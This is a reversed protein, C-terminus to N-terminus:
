IIQTVTKANLWTALRIQRTHRRVRQVLDVKWTLNCSNMGICTEYCSKKSLDACRSKNLYDTSCFEAEAQDARATAGHFAECNAVSHLQPLQTGPHPLSFNLFRQFTWFFEAPTAADESADRRHCSTRNKKFLGKWSKELSCAWVLNCAAQNYLRSEHHVEVFECFFAYWWMWWISKLPAETSRGTFTLSAEWDFVRGTRLYIGRVYRSLVQLLCIHFTHFSNCVFHLTSKSHSAARICILPLM